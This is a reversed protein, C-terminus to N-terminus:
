YLRTLYHACWKLDHCLVFEDVRAVLISSYIIFMANYYCIYIDVLTSITSYIHLHLSFYLYCCVLM